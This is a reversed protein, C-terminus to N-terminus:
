VVVDLNLLITFFHQAPVFPVPPLSFSLHFATPQAIQLPHAASLTNIAPAFLLLIGDFFRDFGALPGM